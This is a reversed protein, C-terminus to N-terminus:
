KQNLKIQKEMEGLIKPKRLLYAFVEPYDPLSHGARQLDEYITQCLTFDAMTDVTLRCNSPPMFDKPTPLWELHFTNSNYYLFNTVHERFITEITSEAVKGLAPLSVWEAFLGLHSLITPKGEWTFSVYDADPRRCGAEVLKDLLLPSLFPSDACVRIVRSFGMSKGAELFRSLVDDADGRFVPVGAQNAIAVIKDDQPLLSTAVLRPLGSPELRDLIIELMTRGGLFPLAVKGPLRSSGMRAQVIIGTIGAKLGPPTDM